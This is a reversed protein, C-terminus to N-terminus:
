NFLLYKKVCNGIELAKLCANKIFRDCTLKSPYISEVGTWILQNLSSPTCVLAHKGRLLTLALEEQHNGMLSDNIVIILRRSGIPTLAQLCVGAGGHSIVLSANAFEAKLSDKYRFAEIHLNEVSGEESTHPIISGNGYQIILNKYGLRTLGEYFKTKNVENILKDFSTTGVTVFATAM